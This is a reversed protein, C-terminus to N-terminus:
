VRAFYPRRGVHQRWPRAFPGNPPGTPDSVAGSPYADLWDWTWESVNGLM